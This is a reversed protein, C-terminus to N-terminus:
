AEALMDDKKGVKDLHVHLVLKSNMSAEIQNCLQDQDLYSPTDIFISNKTQVQIAFNWFMDNGQHMQLLKIRTIEEWDKPLYLKKFETMLAAFTLALLRECNISVWDQVRTDRLGAMIKWVQKEPVIDKTDFYGLCAYKYECM